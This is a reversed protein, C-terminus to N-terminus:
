LFIFKQYTYIYGVYKELKSVQSNLTTSLIETFSYWIPHSSTFSTDIEHSPGALRKANQPLQFLFFFINRHFIKTLKKIM